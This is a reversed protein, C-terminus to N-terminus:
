RANLTVRARARRRAGDTLLKGFGSRRDAVSYYARDLLRPFREAVAAIPRGGPLHRLLPVFARGASYVRGDDTLLHWSEMLRDDGVQDRVPAAAVSDQLPVYRLRGRRDWAMLKAVCWLCFGCDSDYFVTAPTAAPV